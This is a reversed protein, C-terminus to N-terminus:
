NIRKISVNGITRVEGVAHPESNRGEQGSAKSWGLISDAIKQTDDFVIKKNKSQIPGMTENWQNQLNSTKGYIDKVQEQIVARLEEPSKNPDFLAEISKREEVGGAGYTKAIEDAFNKATAHWRNLVDGQGNRSSYANKAANTLHSGFGGRNGLEDVLAWLEGGHKVALNGANRQGGLSGVSGKSYENSLTQRTKYANPDYSDGAIQSVLSTIVEGRKTGLMRPPIPQNGSVISDVESALSPNIERLKKIAEEGSLGKMQDFLGGGNNQTQNPAASGGGPLQTPFGSAGTGTQTMPLGTRTDGYVRNGLEDEGIVGIKPQKSQDILAQKYANEVPDRAALTQVVKQQTAYPLAKFQDASMNIGLGKLTQDNMGESFARNRRSEDEASQLQLDAARQKARQAQDDAQSTLSSFGKQMVSAREEPTLHGSASALTFGLKSINDLFSPNEKTFNTFSDLFGGGQQPQQQDGLLSQPQQFQAGPLQMPQQQNQLLGQPQLDQQQQNPALTNMSATVPADQALLGRGFANFISPGAIDGLVDSDPSIGSGTKSRALASYPDLMQRLNSFYDMM